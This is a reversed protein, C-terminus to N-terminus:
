SNIDSPLKAIQATITGVFAGTVIGAILLAPAYYILSTSDVILMAILLQGINHTVGGIISVTIISFDTKSLILTMVALSLCAGSASYLISFLNGFMFGIILIRALSVLAAKKWSYRILVFLVALNALGLKIGPIGSFVPLLTEVYGLISALATFLGLQAAQRCATTQKEKTYM